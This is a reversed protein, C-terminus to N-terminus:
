TVKHSCARSPTIQSFLLIPGASQVKGLIVSGPVQRQSIITTAYAIGAVLIALAALLILGTRLNLRITM